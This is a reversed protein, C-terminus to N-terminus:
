KNEKIEIPEKLYKKEELLKIEEQKPFIKKTEDACTQSPYLEIGKEMLDILVKMSHVIKSSDEPSPNDFGPGIKKFKELCLSRINEEDGKEVNEKYKLEKAKDEINMLKLIYDLDANKLSKKQLRIDNCAKIFNAIHVLTEINDIIAEVAIVIWNSGEEVKKFSVNGIDNNLIPCKNFVIDLDKIISSLENLDNLENPLKIYLNEIEDEEVKYLDIIAECKAKVINYKSLFLAYESSLVSISKTSSQFAPGLKFIKEVSDRIFDYENLKYLSESNESWNNIVKFTVSGQTKDVVELKLKKYYYDVQKAILKKRM